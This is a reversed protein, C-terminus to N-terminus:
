IEPSKSQLNQDLRKYYKLKAYYKTLADKVTKEKLGNDFDELFNAANQEDSTILNTVKLKLESIKEKDESLIASEIEENLDMMEMLFEQDPDPIGLDFWGELNLIYALRKEPDTLTAYALHHFAIRQNIQDESSSGTESLDPHLLKSIEYYKKRLSKLDLFYAKQIGFHEFYNPDM